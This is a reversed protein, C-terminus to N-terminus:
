LVEIIQKIEPNTVVDLATLKHIESLANKDKLLTLVKLVLTQNKSDLLTELEEVSDTYDLAFFVFDSDEYLEEYLYSNLKDINVGNLLKNIAFIEEKTNKDCDYM